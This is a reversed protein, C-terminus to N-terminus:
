VSPLCLLSLFDVVENQSSKYHLVFPSETSLPHKSHTLNLPLIGSRATHACRQKGHKTKNLIRAGRAFPSCNMNVEHCAEGALCISLKPVFIFPLNM